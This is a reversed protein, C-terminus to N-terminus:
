EAAGGGLSVVRDDVQAASEERAFWVTVPLRLERRWVEVYQRVIMTMLPDCEGCIILVAPGSQKFALLYRLV